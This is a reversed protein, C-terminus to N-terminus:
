NKNRTDTKINFHKAKLIILFKKGEKLFDIEIRM